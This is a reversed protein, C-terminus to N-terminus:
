NEPFYSIRGRSDVSYTKYGSSHKSEIKLTDAQPDLITVNIHETQRYGASKLKDLTLSADSHDSFYAQAATYTNKIDSAAQSDYSKKRYKIFQPLAIAALSVVIAVVIM